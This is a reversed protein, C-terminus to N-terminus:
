QQNNNGGRQKQRVIKVIGWIVLVVGLVALAVGSNTGLLVLKGSLGGIIMIIGIIISIM